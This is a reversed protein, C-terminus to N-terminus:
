EWSALLIDCTSVCCGKQCLWSVTLQHEHAVTPTCIPFFNHERYPFLTQTIYHSYLKVLESTINIRSKYAPIFSHLYVSSRILILSCESCSGSFQLKCSWPMSGLWLLAQENRGDSALWLFLPWFVAVNGGDCLCGGDSVSFLCNLDDGLFCCCGRLFFCDGLTTGLEQWSLLLCLATLWGASLRLLRDCSSASYLWLTEIFRVSSKSSSFNHSSFYSIESCKKIIFFRSSFYSTSKCKTTYEWTCNRRLLTSNHNMSRIWKCNYM